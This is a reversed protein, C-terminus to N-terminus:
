QDIYVCFVEKPGHVGTVLTKEIDATRSPGTQLSIMSPLQDKYKKQIKEYGEAIDYVLESRYAVVIHLPYFVPSVRGLDQRSSILFSGTRAVLAECRTICAEATDDDNDAPLVHTLGSERLRGLFHIDACFLKQWAFSQSLAHIQQMAESEDACYLYKGGLGIFNAAFLEDVSLGKDVFSNKPDFHEAEPFPLPAAYDRLAARIKGLIKERSASGKQVLM